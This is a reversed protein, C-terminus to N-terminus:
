ETQGLACYGGRFYLLPLGEESYRLRQVRGVFIVHDGGDHTSHTLCEFSALSDTLIPAGTDWVEYAVNRWKDSRSRAFGESLHRQRESLINIAFVGAAEFAKLSYAGRDLSFLVLPPDLSVSNFSNATVGLPEGGPGRSTVVTVGTAFTGLARRFDRTDLSM